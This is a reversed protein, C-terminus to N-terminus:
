GSGPPTGARPEAFMDLIVRLQVVEGPTLLPRATKQRSVM